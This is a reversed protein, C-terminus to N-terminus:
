QWGDLCDLCFMGDIDNAFIHESEFGCYDCKENTNNKM